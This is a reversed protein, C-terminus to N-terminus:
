RKLLPYAGRECLDLLIAARVPGPPECGTLNADATKDLNQAVKDKAISQATSSQSMFGIMSTPTGSCFQLITVNVSINIAASILTLSRRHAQGRECPRQRREDM